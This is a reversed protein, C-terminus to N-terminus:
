DDFRGERVGLYCKETILFDLNKPKWQSEGDARQRRESMWRCNEAIYGLYAEWREDTFKFRSWFNKMKTKRTATLERIAPMGPLLRHYADVMAQCDAQVGRKKAPQHPLEEDSSNNKARISKKIETNSDEALYDATSDAPMDADLDASASDQLQYKEKNNMSNRRGELDAVNGGELDASFSRNFGRQYADFNRLTVITYGHAGRKTTRTIAGDQEFYDLARRAQDESVGCADALSAASTVMQGRELAIRAGGFAVQRQEHAVELILHFWVAKKALDKYWTASKVSKFVLRFGSKANDEM